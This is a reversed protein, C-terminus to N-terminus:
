LDEEIADVNHAATEINQDGAWGQAEGFVSYFDWFAEILKNQAEVLKEYTAVERELAEFRLEIEVNSDM